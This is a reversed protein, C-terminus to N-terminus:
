DDQSTKRLCVTLLDHADSLRASLWKAREDTDVGGWTRVRGSEEIAILSNLADVDVKRMMGRLAAVPAATGLSVVKTDEVAERPKGSPAPLEKVWEGNDTGQLGCNACETVGTEYLKFTSCGCPTCVWALPEPRNFGVVNSM